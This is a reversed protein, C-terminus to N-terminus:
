ERSVQVHRRGSEGPLWALSAGGLACRTHTLPLSLCVGSLQERGLRARLWLYPSHMGSGGSAEGKETQGSGTLGARSQSRPLALGCGQCPGGACGRARGRPAQGRSPRLGAAGLFPSKPEEPVERARPTNPVSSHCSQATAGRCCSPDAAAGEAGRRSQAGQAMYPGSASLRPRGGAGM